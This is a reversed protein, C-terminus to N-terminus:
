LWCWIISIWYTIILGVIMVQLFVVLTLLPFFTLAWSLLFSFCRIMVQPVFHLLMSVRASADYDLLFAKILLAVIPVPFVMLGVGIVISIGVSLFFLLYTVIFSFFLLFPTSVLISPSLGSYCRCLHSYPSHFVPTQIVLSIPSVMVVVIHSWFPYLLGRAASFFANLICDPNCHFYHRLVDFDMWIVLLNHIPHLLFLM